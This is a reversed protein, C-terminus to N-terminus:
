VRVAVGAAKLVQKVDSIPVERRHFIGAALAADAGTKEFVEVFHDPCGAGSSAIVPISVATKLDAILPIEYGNNQGDQVRVRERHHCAVYHHGTTTLSRISAISCFKAPELHRSVSLLPTPM